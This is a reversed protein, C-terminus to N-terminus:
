QYLLIFNQYGEEFELLVNDNITLAVIPMVYSAGFYKPATICTIEKGATLLSYGGNNKIIDLNPGIIKFYNDSFINPLDALKLYLTGSEEEISVYDIKATVSVFNDKDAYYTYEKSATCSALLFCITMLMLFLCNKRDKTM